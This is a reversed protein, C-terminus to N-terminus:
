SMATLLAFALLLTWTSVAAGTVVTVTARLASTCGGSVEMLPVPIILTGFRFPRAVTMVLSGSVHQFM